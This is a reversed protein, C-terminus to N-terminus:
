TLLFRLWPRCETWRLLCRFISVPLKFEAAKKSLGLREPQVARFHSVEVPKDASSKGAAFPSFAICNLSEILACPAPM